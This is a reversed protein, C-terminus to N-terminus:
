KGKPKNARKFATYGCKGCHLRDYHDAMFVGPGCKPCDKHTRVVKGGEVTWFKAGDAM